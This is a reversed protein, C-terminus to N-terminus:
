LFRKDPHLYVPPVVLLVPAFHDLWWRLLHNLYLCASSPPLSSLPPLCEYIM